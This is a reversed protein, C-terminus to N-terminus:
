VSPLATDLEDPFVLVTEGTAVVRVYAMPLVESDFGEEPERVVRVLEVEAGHLDPRDSDHRIIKM